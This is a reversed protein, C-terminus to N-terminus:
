TNLYMYSIEMNIILLCYLYICLDMIPVFLISLKQIRGKIQSYMHFHNKVNLALHGFTIKNESQLSKPVLALKVFQYKLCVTKLWHNLITKKLNRISWFCQQSHGVTMM